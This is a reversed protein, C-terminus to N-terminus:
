KGGDWERKDIVPCEKYHKCIELMSSKYCVQCSNIGTWIISSIVIVM